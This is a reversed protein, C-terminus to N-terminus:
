DDFPDDPPVPPFRVITGRREEEDWQRLLRRTRIRKIGWAIFALILIITWTGPVYVILAKKGYNRSLYDRFAMEFRGISMGTVSEFADGFPMGEGVAALIGALVHGGELRNLYSVALLSQDYALGADASGVSFVDEITSFSLIRGRSVNWVMYLRDGLGFGGSLYEACGEHFWRPLPVDKAVSMLVCHVIEHALIRELSMKHGDLPSVVITSKDLAAASSWDPLVGRTLTRFERDDAALTITIPSVLPVGLADTIRPLVREASDLAVRPYYDRGNGSVIRFHASSLGAAGANLGSLCLAVAAVFSMFRVMRPM